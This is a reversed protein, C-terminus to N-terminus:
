GEASVDEEEDGEDRWSGVSEVVDDLLWVDIGMDDFSLVRHPAGGEDDALDFEDIDSPELGLQEIIEHESMGILNANKYIFFDGSIVSEVLGNEEYIDTDTGPVNYFETEHGPITDDHVHRLGLHEIFDAIPKGYVIPGIQENPVWDWVIEKMNEENGEKAMRSAKEREARMKRM